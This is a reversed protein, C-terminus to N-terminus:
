SHAIKSSVGERLVKSIIHGSNSLRVDSPTFPVNGFIIYEALKM